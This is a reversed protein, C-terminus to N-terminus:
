DETEEYDIRAAYTLDDLLDSLDKYGEAVVMGAAFKITKGVSERKFILLQGNREQKIYGDCSELVVSYGVRNKIIARPLIFTFGGKEVKDFPKGVENILLNKHEGLCSM